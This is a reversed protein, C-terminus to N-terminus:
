ASGARPTIRAWTGDARQEYHTHTPEHNPTVTLWMRLPEDGLAMLKHKHEAPVIVVEGVGVDAAEEEVTIRCQGRLFLFIEDAGDHSHYSCEFGPEFELMGGRVRPSAPFRQGSVCETIWVPGSTATPAPHTSENPALAWILRLPAKGTNVLAYSTGAPIYAQMPGTFPHEVGDAVVKGEGSLFIYMEDSGPHRHQGYGGGPPLEAVESRITPTDILVVGPECRLIQM